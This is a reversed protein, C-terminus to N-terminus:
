STSPIDAMYVTRKVHLAPNNGHTPGSWPMRRGPMNYGIYQATYSNPHDDRWAGFEAENAPMTLRLEDDPEVTRSDSPCVLADVSVDARAALLGMWTYGRGGGAGGSILADSFWRESIPPLAGQYDTAWVNIGVGMQRLNSLCQTMRAAN